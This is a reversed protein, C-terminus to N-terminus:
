DEPLVSASTAEHKRLNKLCTRFHQSAKNANCVCPLCLQSAFTTIFMCKLPFFDTYVHLLEALATPKEPSFM